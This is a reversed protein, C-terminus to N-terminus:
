CYDYNKIYIIWGISILAIALMMLLLFNVGTYPLTMENKTKHEDAQYVSGGNDEKATTVEDSAEASNSTETEDCNEDEGQENSEEEEGCIVDVGTTDQLGNYTGTQTFTGVAGATFTNGSYSGGPNDTSFTTESTVDWSNGYGDEALGSYNESSGSVVTADEPTITLKVPEGCIVDVGTTDQM